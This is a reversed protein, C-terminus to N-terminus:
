KWGMKKGHIESYKKLVKKSFQKDGKGNYCVLSNTLIDKNRVLCSILIRCSHRIARSVEFTAGNWISPNVQGIGLGGPGIARPNFNSEVSLMGAVIEEDLGSVNACQDIESTILLATEESLKSNSKLIYETLYDNQIKNSVTLCNGSYKLYGILFGCLLAIILSLIEFIPLKKSHTSM